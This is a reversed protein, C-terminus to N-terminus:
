RGTSGFGPKSLTASAPPADLRVFAERNVDLAWMQAIRDGHRVVRPWPCYLLVCLERGNFEHEVLGDHVLIGRLFNGSRGTVRVVCEQPVDLAVGVPVRIFGWVIRWGVGPLRARLDLAAGSHREPWLAGEGTLWCRVM